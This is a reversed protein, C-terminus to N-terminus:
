VALSFMPLASSDDKEMYPPLWVGETLEKREGNSDYLESYPPLLFAGHVAKSYPTLGDMSSASSCSSSTSPAPSASRSSHPSSVSPLALVGSAPSSRSSDSGSSTSSSLSPVPSASRSQATTRRMAASSAGHHVGLMKYLDEVCESVQVLKMPLTMVLTETKRDPHAIRAKRLREGANASDSGCQAAIEAAAADPLWSLRLAIKMEHRVKCFPTDFDPNLLKRRLNRGSKEDDKDDDPTPIPLELEQDGKRLVSIALDMKAWEGDLELGGTAPSPRFNVRKTPLMPVTRTWQLPEPPATLGLNFFGEMPNQTLFPKIPPQM